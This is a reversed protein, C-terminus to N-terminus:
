FGGEPCHSEHADVCKCKELGTSNSVKVDMAALIARQQFIAKVKALEVILRNLDTM